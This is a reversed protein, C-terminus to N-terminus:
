ENASSSDGSHTTSVKCLLPVAASPAAMLLALLLGVLGRDIETAASCPPEAPSALLVRAACLRRDCLHPRYFRAIKGESSQARPARSSGLAFSECAFNRLFFFDLNLKQTVKRPSLRVHNSQTNHKPLHTPGLSARIADRHFHTSAPDLHDPGGGVVFSPRDQRRLAHRITPHSQLGRVFSRGSHPRDVAPQYLAGAAGKSTRQGADEHLRISSSAEECGNTDESTSSAIKTKKKQYEM